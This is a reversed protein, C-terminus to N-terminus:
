EYKKELESTDDEEKGFTELPMSLIEKTYEEKEKRRKIIKTVIVILTFLILILILSGILNPPEKPESMIFQSTSVFTNAIMAEMTLSLDNYNTKFYGWFIKIAESDMITDASYGNLYRFEGEMESLDDKEIAFYSFIFHAEDTFNDEYFSELYQDAANGNISGDENWFTEDYPVFLVFPQVGTKKYFEELGQILVSKNSVWGINDQFWDTKHVQGSLPIREISNGSNDNSSYGIMLSFVTIVMYFILVILCGYSMCGSAKKKPTGSTNFINIKPPPTM